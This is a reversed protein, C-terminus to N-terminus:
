LESWGVASSTDVVTRGVLTIGTFSISKLPKLLFTNWSVIGGGIGAGEGGIGAGVM